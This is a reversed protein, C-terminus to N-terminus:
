THAIFCSSVKFTRLPYEGYLYDEMGIVKLIYDNVKLNHNGTNTKWKELTMAILENPIKDAGIRM